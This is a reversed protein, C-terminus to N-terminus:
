RLVYVDMVEGQRSIVGIVNHSSLPLIFTIVLMM